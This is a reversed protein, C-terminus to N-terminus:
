LGILVVLVVFLFAVLIKLLVIVDKREEVFLNKLNLFEVVVVGVMVKNDSPPLSVYDKLAILLKILDLKGQM